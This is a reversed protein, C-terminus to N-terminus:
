IYNYFYSNRFSNRNLHMGKSGESPLSDLAWELFEGDSSYESSGCDMLLATM